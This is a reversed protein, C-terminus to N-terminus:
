VHALKDLIRTSGGLVTLILTFPLRCVVDKRAFNALCSVRSAILLILPVLVSVIIKLILHLGPLWILSSLCSSHLTTSTVIIFTGIGVCLEIHLLFDYKLLSTLTKKLSAIPLSKSHSALFMQLLVM